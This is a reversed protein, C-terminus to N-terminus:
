QQHNCCFPKVPQFTPDACYCVTLMVAGRGTLVATALHFAEHLIGALWYLVAAEAIACAVEIVTASPISPM